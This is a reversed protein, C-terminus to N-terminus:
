SRVLSVVGCLLFVILLAPWLDAILGGIVLFGGVLMSLGGVVICVVVVLLILLLAFM